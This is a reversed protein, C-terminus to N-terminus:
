FGLGLGLLHYRHSPLHLLHLRHQLPDPIQVVLDAVCDVRDGAGVEEFGDLGEAFGAGTLLGPDVRRRRRRLPNPVVGAATATVPLTAEDEHLIKPRRRRLHVPVRGHGLRPAEVGNAGRELVELVLELEKM